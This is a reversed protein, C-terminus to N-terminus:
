GSASRARGAARRTRCLPSVADSDALACFVPRVIRRRFGGSACRVGAPLKRGSISPSRCRRRRGSRRVKQPSTSLAMSTGPSVSLQESDSGVSARGPISMPSSGSPTADAAPAAAGGIAVPESAAPASATESAKLTRFCASCLGDNADSGFFGCGAACLKPADSMFFIAFNQWALRWPRPLTRPAHRSGM